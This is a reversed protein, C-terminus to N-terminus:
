CRTAAATLIDALGLARTFLVKHFSAPFFPHTPRSHGMTREALRPGPGMSNPVFKIIAGRCNTKTVLVLINSARDGRRLSILLPALSKSKVKIPKICSCTNLSSSSKNQERNGVNRLIGRDPSEHVMGSNDARYCPIVLSVMQDVLNVM